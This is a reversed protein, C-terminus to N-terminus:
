LQFIVIMQLTTTSDTMFQVRMKNEQQFKRAGSKRKFEIVSFYRGM